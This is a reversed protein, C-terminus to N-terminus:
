RNSSKFADPDRVQHDDNCIEILTLRQYTQFQCFIRLMTNPSVAELQLSCQDRVRAHVVPTQQATGYTHIIVDEEILMTTSRTLAGNTFAMHGTRCRPNQLFNRLRRRSNRRDLIELNQKLFIM